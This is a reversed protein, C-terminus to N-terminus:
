KKGSPNKFFFLSNVFDIKPTKLIDSAEQVVELAQAPSYGKAWLGAVLAGQSCGVILDPKIQHKDFLEMLAISGYGYIGVGPLIVTIKKM